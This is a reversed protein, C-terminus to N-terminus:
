HKKFIKKKLPAKTQSVYRTLKGNPVGVSKEEVSETFKFLIKM